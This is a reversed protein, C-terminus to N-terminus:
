DHSHGPSTEFFERLRRIADAYEQTLLAIRECNERHEALIVDDALKLKKSNLKNDQELAAILADGAADTEKFLVTVRSPKRIASRRQISTRSPFLVPLTSQAYKM